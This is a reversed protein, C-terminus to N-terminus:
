NDDRTEDPTKEDSELPDEEPAPFSAPTGFLPARRHENPGPRYVVTIGHNQSEATKSAALEGPTEEEHTMESTPSALAEDEIHSDQGVDVDEADEHASDTGDSPELGDGQAADARLGVDSPPGEEHPTTTSVEDEEEAVAIQLSDEDEEDPTAAPPSESEIDEPEAEAFAAAAAAAAAALENDTSEEDDDDAIVEVRGSDGQRTGDLAAAALEELSEDSAIVEVRDSRESAEQLARADAEAEAKARAEAQAEVESTMRTVLEREPSPLPLEGEYRGVVVHSARAVRGNLRYGRQLDKLVIDHQDPDEVTQTEVAEAVEPDYPRGLVPIRELGEEQLTQLLQTRVLILGEIMSGGTYSLEAAELARDLNDLIDIFKLLLREHRQAYRRETNKRVREQYSENEAKLARYAGVVEGLQEKAVRAQERFDASEGPDPVSGRRSDDTGESRQYPESM